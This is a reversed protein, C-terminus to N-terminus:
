TYKRERWSDKVYGFFSGVEVVALHALSKTVSSRPAADNTRWSSPITDKADSVVVSAKTGGSERSEAWKM